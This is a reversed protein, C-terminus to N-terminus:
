DSSGEDPNGSGSCTEQIESEYEKKLEDFSVFNSSVIKIESCKAYSLWADVDWDHGNDDIILIPEFIKESLRRLTEEQKTM